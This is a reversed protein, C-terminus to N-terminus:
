CGTYNLFGAVIFNAIKATADIVSNMDISSFTKFLSGILTVIASNKMFYDLFHHKEDCFQHDEELLNFCHNM